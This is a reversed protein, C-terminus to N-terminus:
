RGELMSLNLKMWLLSGDKKWIIKLKTTIFLIVTITVDVCNLIYLIKWTNEAITQFRFGMIEMLGTDASYVKKQAVTQDGVSFAYKDIIFILYVSELFHIYNKM